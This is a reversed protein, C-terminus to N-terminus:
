PAVIRKGPGFISYSFTVEDSAAGRTDDAIREIRGALVHDNTNKALFVEGVQITYARSSSDFTDFSM